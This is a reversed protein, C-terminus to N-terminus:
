EIVVETGAIGVGGLASDTVLRLCCETAEQEVIWQIISNLTTIDTIQFFQVIRCCIELYDEVLLHHLLNMWQAAFLKM